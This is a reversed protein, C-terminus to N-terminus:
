GECASRLTARHAPVPRIDAEYAEAHGEALHRRFAEAGHAARDRLFALLVRLREPVAGVGPGYARCFAAARRAAGAAQRLERPQGARAPARVPPRRLRRGLRTPGPTGRRLRHARRGRGGARCLQPAADGHCIVGAPERAPLWWAADVDGSRHVVNAGGRLGQRDTM